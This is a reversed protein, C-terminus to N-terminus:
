QGAQILQQVLQRPSCSQDNCLTCLPRWPIFFTHIDQEALLKARSVLSECSDLHISEAGQSTRRTFYGQQRVPDFFLTAQEQKRLSLAETLPLPTPAEKLQPLQYRFAGISLLAGRQPLENQLFQQLQPTFPAVTDMHLVPICPPSLREEAWCVFFISGIQMQRIAQVLPASQAFSHSNFFVGRFGRLRCETAIQRCLRAVRAADHLSNLNGAFRDTLTLLASRIPLTRCTRLLTCHSDIAYATIIPIGGTAQMHSVDGVDGSLYITNM